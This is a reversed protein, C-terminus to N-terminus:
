PKICYGYHRSMGSGKRSRGRKSGQGARAGAGSEAGAAAMANGRVQGPEITGSHRGGRIIDKSRGLM